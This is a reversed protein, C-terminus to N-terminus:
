NQFAACYEDRERRNACRLSIVRRVAGRDTFVCALAVGGIMGIARTRVEQYDRRMDPRELTPRSFLMIVLDFPLDREMQNRDSKAQDWEFDREVEPIIMYTM